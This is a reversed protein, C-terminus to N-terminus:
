ITVIITGEEARLVINLPHIIYSLILTTINFLFATLLMILSDVKDDTNTVNEGDVVGLDNMVNSPEGFTEM